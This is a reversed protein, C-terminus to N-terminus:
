PVFLPFFFDLTQLISFLFSSFGPFFVPSPPFLSYKLGIESWRLPSRCYAKGTACLFFTLLLPSVGFTSLRVLNPIRGM